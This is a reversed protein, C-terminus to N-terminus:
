GRVRRSILSFDQQPRVAQWYLEWMDKLAAMPTEGEGTCGMRHCYWLGSAPNQRCHPKKMRVTGQQHHNETRSYM